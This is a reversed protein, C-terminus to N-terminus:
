KIHYKKQFNFIIDRNEFFLKILKFNECIYNKVLIMIGGRPNVQYEEEVNSFVKFQEMEKEFVAIDNLDMKIELLCVIDFVNLQEEFDESIMKSKLGGVNLSFFKLKNLVINKGMSNVNNKKLNNSASRLPVKLNKTSAKKVASSDVKSNVKKLKLPNKAYTHDHNCLRSLYNQEPTKIPSLSPKNLATNKSISTENIFKQNKSTSKLPIKFNQGNLSLPPNKQNVSKIFKEGESEQGM